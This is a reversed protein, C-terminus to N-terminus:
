GPIVIRRLELEEGMDIARILLAARGANFHPVQLHVKALGNSDSKAHFIVPRFSSGLVKVMIQADPVVKRGTGRCVMISLTHRDGGKFRYDGLLEVSLKTNSPREKGSLESVVSVDEGQVDVVESILAEEFVINSDDIVQVEEFPDFAPMEIKQSDEFEVLISDADVEITDPFEDEVLDRATETPEPEAPAENRNSGVASTETLPVEPKPPSPFTDGIKPPEDPLDPTAAAPKVRSKEVVVGRFKSSRAASAKSTMEKLEDIRGAKIAACMLKHQKSVRAALVKEDLDGEPIDDYTTRKSALITGGVYVLSIIKKSSLGKDETQIHYVVGDFEVDTNFGSIVKIIVLRSRPFDSAARCHKGRKFTVYPKM